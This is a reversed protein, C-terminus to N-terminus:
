ELDQQLRSRPKMGPAKLNQPPLCIPNQHETTGPKVGGVSSSLKDDFTPARKISPPRLPPPPPAIQPKISDPLVVKEPNEGTTAISIPVKGDPDEQAPTSKRKGVGLFIKSFIGPEPKSIATEEKGSTIRVLTQKSKNGTM